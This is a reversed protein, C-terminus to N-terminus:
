AKAQAVPAVIRAQERLHKERREAEEYGERLVNPLLKSATEPAGFGDTQVRTWVDGNTFAVQVPAFLANVFPSTQVLSHNGVSRHIGKRRADVHSLVAGTGDRFTIGNSRADM